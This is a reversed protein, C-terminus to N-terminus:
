RKEIQDIEVLKSLIEEYKAKTQLLCNYQNTRTAKLYKGTPTYNNEYYKIDNELHSIIADLYDIFEKQQEKLQQNEKQMKEICSLHYKNDGIMIFEGTESNSCICCKKISKNM